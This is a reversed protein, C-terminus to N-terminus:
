NSYGYTAMIAKAKDSKLYNLLATAAPNDEGKKLLVADQYLPSYFNEPVLWASGKTIKGNKYVQSLAVFGLEANGSDVFQKTQSINEGTVLKGQLTTSLGLKDLTEIAAAGYPATKPNAIALHKFSGSKLVAGQNDVRKEDGSWLVLKGRAYTFQSDALALEAKVLKKPTKSDASVMVEFPAGNQIQTFLKGTAGPTIVAHHQTSKEFEAAIEQLPALFNAAVAVLVEDAHAASSSGLLTLLLSALTLPRSYHKM